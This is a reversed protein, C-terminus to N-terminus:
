DSPGSIVITRPVLLDGRDASRHSSLHFNDGMPICLERLYAPGERHLAKYVLTSLKFNIRELIRLWKLEYIIIYVYYVFLKIM